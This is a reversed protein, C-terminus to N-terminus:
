TESEKRSKLTLILNNEKIIVILFYRAVAAVYESQNNKQANINQGM